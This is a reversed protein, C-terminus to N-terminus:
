SESIEAPRITHVYAGAAIGVFLWYAFIFRDFLTIADGLGFFAHAMLAAGASVAAARTFAEGHRWTQVLMVILVIQWAVFLILGPIGVDSGVQLLEDHAHPLVGTGFGPAPYQNRVMSARFMNLGAGSLPHDRIISLASNWIEFRVDISSADRASLVESSSTDAAGADTVLYIQFGTFAILVALIGYRWRGAPILLFTLAFLALLVGFIALRSQGLTLAFALLIFGGTAIIRRLPAGRVRWDYFAIGAAFPAFFAMAGGIENVNFGGVAGPFHTFKPVFDILAQLQGSKTTVYQASVLGLVGVLLSLLLIVLVTGKTTGREYIISAISLALAVGMLPRGMMWWGWSYPAAAPNTLAISTNIACLALFAYLLFSLWTSVWLRRYLMLRAIMPPVFLVLAWLRDTTGALWFVAVIMALLLPEVLLIGQALKKM